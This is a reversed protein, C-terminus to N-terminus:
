IPGTLAVTNITKRVPIFQNCADAHEEGLGTYEYQLTDAQPMDQANIQRAIDLLFPQLCDGGADNVQQEILVAANGTQM